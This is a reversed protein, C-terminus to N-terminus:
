PRPISGDPNLSPTRWWPTPSEPIIRRADTIRKSAEPYIAILRHLAEGVIEFQREVGSRLLPDSRQDDLSRGSVFAQILGCAEAMDFLYKRAERPKM